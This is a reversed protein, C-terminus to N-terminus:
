MLWRPFTSSRPSPRWSPWGQWAGEGGKKWTLEEGVRPESWDPWGFCMQVKQRLLWLFITLWGVFVSNLLEAFSPWFM